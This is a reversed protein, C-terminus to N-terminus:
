ANPAGGDVHTMGISHLLSHLTNSKTTARDIVQKLNELDTDDLMFYLERRGPGSEYFTLKLMHSVVAENPTEAPDRAFIPRIDTYIKASVFIREHDYQLQWAKTKVRFAEVALLGRLNEELHGSGDLAAEPGSEESLAVAIDRAFDEPSQEEDAIHAYWSVLSSILQRVEDEAQGGL